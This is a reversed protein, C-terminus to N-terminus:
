PPGDEEGRAARRYDSLEPLLPLETRRQLGDYTAQEQLQRDRVANYRSATVGDRIADDRLIVPRIFVMLNRKVRRSTRYKFLNGVVPIDGLAPVKRVTERLDDDILGGLVLVGGDPVMVTTTIERTSTILDVAGTQPSLSSVEQSIDMVVVDGENIHPTVTLTLGVDRREITQFPNVASNAAGTAAFQGTLFPVEQGVNIVAEQHDLTVISPTSLVNTDADAALASALASLQPVERFITNGDGDVGTPIRVTGALYGLNLGSGLGGLNITGDELDTVGLISPGAGANTPFSTGGIVGTDNLSDIDTAQWQVGLERSIDTSVEAIIAEVMVQKRRIDLQRVIAQLSRFVAPTASIVLSNTEPHAQISTRGAQAGGGEGAGALSEAVQELLTVLGDAAAYRLYIVQTSGTELPTDLHSIMTRLRLRAAADGALLISNTREDAIIRPGAGNGAAAGESLQQLMGVLESASAHQLAILEVDDESGQDIRDILRLLRDVNGARDSIILSNSGPHAILAASQPLLQRLLQVLESAPVHTLEIVRTVLADPGGAADTMPVTDQHAMTDPVIKVFDGSPVAALNHVRLVSLFVEYIEEPSMAQKSLVTVRGEVRPDVIFNRGTIEQVTAILVQMEADQLNLRHNQASANGALLAAFLLATRHSM